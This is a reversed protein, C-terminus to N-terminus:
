LTPYFANEIHEINYYDISTIIVTIVDFRTEKEINNKIIYHNAAKVLYKQKKTSVTLSPDAEFFSSRTKVEVIVLFGDKEAIIDIENKNFYWNLEIIKYTKNLLYEMALREGQKGLENHEAM